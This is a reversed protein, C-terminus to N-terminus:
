RIKRYSVTTRGLAKMRFTSSCGIWASRIRLSGLRTPTCIHFLGSLKVSSVQCKKFGDALEPGLQVSITRAHGARNRIAFIHNLVGKKTSIAAEVGIVVAPRERRPKKADRVILADIKKAAATDSHLRFGCRRFRVEDLGGFREPRGEARSDLM